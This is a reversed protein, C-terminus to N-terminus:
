VRANSGQPTSPAAPTHRKVLGLADVDLYLAATYERAGRQTATTTIQRPRHEGICFLAFGVEMPCVRDPMVSDVAELRRLLDQRDLYTLDVYRRQPYTREQWQTSPAPRFQSAHVASASQM